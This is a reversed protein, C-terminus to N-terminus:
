PSMTVVTSIISTPLTYHIAIQINTDSPTRRFVSLNNRLIVMLLLLPDSAGRDARRLRVRLGILCVRSQIRTSVAVTEIVYNMANTSCSRLPATTGSLVLLAGANYHDM